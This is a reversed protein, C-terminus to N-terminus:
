IAPILAVGSLQPPSSFISPSSATPPLTRFCNAPQACRSAAAVASLRVLGTVPSPVCSWQGCGALGGDRQRDDAFRVAARYTNTGALIILGKALEDENPLDQM